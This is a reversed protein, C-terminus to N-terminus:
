SVEAAITDIWMIGDGDYISAGILLKETNDPVNIEVMHPVWSEDVVPVTEYSNVYAISRKEKDFARIWIGVSAASGRRAIHTRLVLRKGRLVVVPATQVIGAYPAGIKYAIRLSAQQSKKKNTDLAIGTAVGDILWESPLDPNEVQRASFDANRVIPPTIACGALMLAFAISTLVFLLKM